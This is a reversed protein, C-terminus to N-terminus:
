YVRPVLNGIGIVTKVVSYIVIEFNYDSLLSLIDRLVSITRM